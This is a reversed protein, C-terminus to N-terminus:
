AAGYAKPYASVVMAQRKPLGTAADLVPNQPVAYRGPVFDGTGRGSLALTSGVSPLFANLAISGAEAIGGLGAAAGFEPNVMSGVWWVGVAIAAAAVTSYLPSGTVAAPLAATIAKTAAVGVLVGVGAQVIGSPRSLSISSAMPNSSRRNTKKGVVKMGHSKAFAMVRSKSLGARKPPNRHNRASSNSKPRHAYSKKNKKKKAMKSSRQPNIMPGLTMLYAPNGARRRHNPKASARKRPHSKKPNVVRTVRGAIM